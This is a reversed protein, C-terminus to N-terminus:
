PNLASRRWADVRPKAATGPKARLLGSEIKEMMDWNTPPDVAFHGHRISAAHAAQGEDVVNQFQRELNGRASVQAPAREMVTEAASQTETLREPTRPLEMESAPRARPPTGRSPVREMVSEAASQTQVPRGMTPPMEAPPALEVNARPTPPSPKGLVTRIPAQIPQRTVSEGILRQPADMLSKPAVEPVAKAAGGTGRLAAMVRGMPQRARNVLGMVAGTGAVLAPAISLAAGTGSTLPSAPNADEAEHLMQLNDDDSTTPADPKFQPSMGAKMRVADLVRNPHTGMAMMTTRAEDPVVRRAFASLGGLQQARVGTEEVDQEDEATAVARDARGILQEPTFKSHGERFTASAPPESATALGALAGDIFRKIDAAPAGAQQMALAHARVKERPDGQEPELEEEIM